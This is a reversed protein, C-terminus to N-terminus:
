KTWYLWSTTGRFPSQSSAETLTKCIVVIRNGGRRPDRSPLSTSSARSALQRPGRLPELRRRDAGVQLHAGARMGRRPFRRLRGALLAGAKPFVVRARYSGVVDTQTAKFTFLKGPPTASGSRPSRTRCRRAGHQLVRITVVWPKGAALGPKPTSSLGVTAMCGANAAATVALAAVITAVLVLLKKMRVETRTSAASVGDCPAPEAVRGVRGPELAEDETLDGELRLLLDGRNWLLVTGALYTREDSILGNEDLFMVFHQPGDVFLGPEGDVTVEDIITGRDATKKIFGDFIAGRAQSLVLRPKAPDGYVVSALGDPRVFIADPESGLDLLEFGVRREAEDRSVREGYDLRQARVDPLTDVREVTAGRIHFIELFASRAGPSFALVGAVVAM